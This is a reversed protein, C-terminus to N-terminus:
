WHPKPKPLDDPEPKGAIRQLAAMIKDVSSPTSRAADVIMVPNTPAHCDLGWLAARRESIRLCIAAAAENGELALEHFVSSLEDLRALEIKLARQRADPTIAPCRDEVAQEVEQVAVGFRAAISRFSEGCLRAKFMLDGVDISQETLPPDVRPSRARPM